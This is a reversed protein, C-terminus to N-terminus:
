VMGPLQWGKSFTAVCLFMRWVWHLSLLQKVLDAQYGCWRGRPQHDSGKAQIRSSCRLNAAMFSLWGWDKNCQSCQVMPADGVLQVHSAALGNNDVHWGIQCVRIEGVAVKWQVCHRYTNLMTWGRAVRFWSPIPRIPQRNGDTELGLQARLSWALMPLHQWLMRRGVLAGSFEFTTDLVMVPGHCVM